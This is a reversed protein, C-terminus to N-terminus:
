DFTNYKADENKEIPLNEILYDQVYDYGWKDLYYLLNDVEIDLEDAAAEIDFFDWGCEDFLDNLEEESNVDETCNNMLADGIAEYDSSSYGGTSSEIIFDKLHKM